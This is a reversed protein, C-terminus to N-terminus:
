DYPHNTLSPIELLSSKGVMINTFLSLIEAVSPSENKDDFLSHMKNSLDNLCTRCCDKVSKRLLLNSM